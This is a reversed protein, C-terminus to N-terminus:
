QQGYTSHYRGWWKAVEYAPMVSVEGLQMAAFVTRAADEVMVAAKLAKKVSVDFTFVGHGGLLIAPSQTRYQLIAEGIHDGQNDVYPTCPVDGGFEDAIATLCCPISRNVAAFATAYNSHTHVVSHLEPCHRYLYLHHPLDVSPKLEGSLMNGDLDVVPQMDPTLEDYNVGSPKIVVRGDSLRGSVNGSTSTVLGTAMLQKNAWCVQDQMDRLADDM